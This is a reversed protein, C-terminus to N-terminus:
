EAVGILRLFAWALEATSATRAPNYTAQFPVGDTLAILQQAAVDADVAPAGEGRLALEDALAEAILGRLTEYRRVFHEHAPHEPALAETSVLLFLPTAGREDDNQEIRHMYWRLVPSRLGRFDPDDGDHADFFARAARREEEDRHLMLDSLLEEKSTVYHLVTVHTIGVEAAIDRLSVAQYGKEAFLTFAADFIRQRTRQGKSLKTTTADSM